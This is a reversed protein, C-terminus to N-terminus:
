DELMTQNPSRTQGNKSIERKLPKELKPGHKLGCMRLDPLQKIKTLRRGSWMYGKPLNEKWSTFKTFEKWSDSLSRNADVSWYDDDVNTYAARTVDVQKLPIPFTEEKPVYLQLRPESHHRYIIDGQVSWFDKRPEADDTTETPQPGELEGQFTEVSIKRVIQATGDAVPFMVYERRQPTLVEKAKNRRPHIKQCTWIEWSRLTQSWFIEKGFERAVLEYGLCLGPLVTKGFQLRSQDRASVPYCEVMAGFPIAPGRFPEGFRRECPAKGDALIDQVNRLYCYCEVSDAWWKKM